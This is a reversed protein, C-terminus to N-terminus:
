SGKATAKVKKPAPLMKTNGNAAEMIAAAATNVSAQVPTLDLRAYVATTAVNKHGLSKGIISLSAGAAAQWSGMTRRLDHVRVDNKGDATLLDARKLISHWAKKPEKLHETTGISPFVFPSEGNEGHRRRLIAVVPPALVCILPEGGKADSASIQWLGRDLDLADWRMSLVNARRGGTLLAVVFFDRWAESPEDKLATFFRRLEDANLVRSRSQEKYRKVGRAPNPVDKVCCNFVTSVLALTRNAAYLGHERGIHVHLRQVDAQALASVKRGALPKLYRDFVAQDQRWTRKYPKSYRELYDTFVDGFTLEGRAARKADQPNEGTAMRGTLKKAERRAQEISVDPYRGIRSRQPGGNLWRYLYFCKTGTAMVSLALGPVKSDYVYRRGEAPM